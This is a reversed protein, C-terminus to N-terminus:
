PELEAVLDGRTEIFVDNESAHMWRTDKAAVIAENSTNM